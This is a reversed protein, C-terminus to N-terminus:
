YDSSTTTAAVLETPDLIIGKWGDTRFSCLIKRHNGQWTAMHYLWEIVVVM